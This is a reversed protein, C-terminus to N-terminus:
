CSVRINAAKSKTNLPYWSETSTLTPCKFAADPKLKTHFALFTIVFNLATGRFARIATCVDFFGTKQYYQTKDYETCKQSKKVQPEGVGRNM